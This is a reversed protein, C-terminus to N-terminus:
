RGCVADGDVEIEGVAVNLRLRPLSSRRGAARQRSHPRCAQDALRFADVAGFASSHRSIHDGAGAVAGDGAIRPCCRGQAAEAVVDEVAAGAVVRESVGDAAADVGDIAAMPASVSATDPVDPLSVMWTVTLPGPTMVEISPM